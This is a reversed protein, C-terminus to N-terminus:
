CSSKLLKGFACVKRIFVSLGLRGDSCGWGEVGRWLLTDSEPSREETMIREFNKIDSSAHSDGRQSRPLTDAARTVREREIAAEPSGISTVEDNIIRV